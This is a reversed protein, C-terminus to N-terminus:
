RSALSSPGRARLSEEFMPSYAQADVKRVGSRANETAGWQAFRLDHRLTTPMVFSSVPTARIIGSSWVLASSTVTLM